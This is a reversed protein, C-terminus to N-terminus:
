AGAGRVDTLIRQFEARIKQVETGGALAAGTGDGRWAANPQRLPTAVAFQESVPLDYIGLEHLIEDVQAYDHHKHNTKPDARYADVRERAGAEERILHVMAMRRYRVAGPTRHLEQGLDAYSESPEALIVRVTEPRTWKRRWLGPVDVEVEQGIEEWFKRRTAPGVQLRGPNIQFRRGGGPKSRKATM